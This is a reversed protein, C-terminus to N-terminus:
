GRIALGMQVTDVVAFILLGFLAVIGLMAILSFLNDKM